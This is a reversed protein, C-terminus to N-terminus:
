ETVQNVEAVNILVRSHHHGTLRSFLKGKVKVKKGIPLTKEPIKSYDIAMQLIKINSQTEEGLGTQPNDAVVTVPELLKLYWGNEIEDGGKISEYNPPGPFTQTEIVGALEVTKPDFAFVKEPKGWISGVYLFVTFGIFKIIQM